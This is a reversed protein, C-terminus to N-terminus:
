VNCYQGNIETKSNRTIENKTPKITLKNNLQKKSKSMM